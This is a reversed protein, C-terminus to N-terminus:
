RSELFSIILYTFLAGFGASLTPYLWNVLARSKKIEAIDDRLDSIERRLAGSEEKTVYHVKFDALEKRIEELQYYILDANVRTHPKKADTM